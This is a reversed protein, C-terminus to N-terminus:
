ICYVHAIFIKYKAKLINISYLFILISGINRKLHFNQQSNKGCESINCIDIAYIEFKQTIVNLIYRAQSKKALHAM